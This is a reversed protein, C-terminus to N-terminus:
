LGFFYVNNVLSLSICVSENFRLKSRTDLLINYFHFVIFNKVTCHTAAHQVTIKTKGPSKEPSGSLQQLFRGVSSRDFGSTRFRHTKGNRVVAHNSSRSRTTRRSIKAATSTLFKHVTQLFAGLFLIIISVRSM